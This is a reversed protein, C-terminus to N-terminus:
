DEKVGGAGSVEAESIAKKDTKVDGAGFMSAVKFPRKLNGAAPKGFVHIQVINQEIASKVPLISQILLPNTYKMYLHMFAMMAIGQFVGKMASTVQGLDYEKITTTVLKSETQGSMPAPPEVYKLTTLDNKKNIQFRTYFYLGFILANSALYLARVGLLVTSDEFDIKKSVQMMVLMIVLNSVAPNVM